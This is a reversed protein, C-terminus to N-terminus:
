NKTETTKRPQIFSSTCWQLLCCGPHGRENQPLASVKHHQHCPWVKFGKAHRTTAAQKGSTTSAPPFMQAFAGGGAAVPAAALSGPEAGLMLGAAGVEVAVAAAARKCAAAAATGAHIVRPRLVLGPWGAAFAAPLSARSLAKLAIIPQPAGTSTPLYAPLHFPQLITQVASEVLQTFTRCFMFRREMTMKMRSLLRQHHKAAQLLEHYHRPLLTNEREVQRVLGIM